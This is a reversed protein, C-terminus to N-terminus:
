EQEQEQEEQEQEQEEQEPNNEQRRTHQNGMMRHHSQTDVNPEPAPPFADEWKM